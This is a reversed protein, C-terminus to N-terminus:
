PESADPDFGSAELLLEQVFALLHIRLLTVDKEYDGISGPEREMDKAALGGSIFMSLRAANLSSLWATRHAAPVAMRFTLPGDEELSRLDQEVIEVRGQFLHELEPQALRRWQERAEDDDYADPMLRARVEEDDRRLEDPIRLLTEACIPPLDRLELDGAAAIEVRV